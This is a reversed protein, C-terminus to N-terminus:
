NTVILDDTNVLSGSQLEVKDIVGASVATVTTEMKMAEIIFLPQNEKVEEGKKVLVRSLLGQLPAGVEKDNSADAKTNEKVESKVSKNKVIVNRMQGNIKFFISVNGHLDPESKQMLSVLIRKGPELEIMIEENKEMGFFFNKTPINAVNGYKVHNNYADTFVKPYLKYSLFDTIELERGM